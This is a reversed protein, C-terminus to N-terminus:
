RIDVLKVKYKSSQIKGEIDGISFLIGKNEQNAARDFTKNKFLLRNVMGATANFDWKHDDPWQMFDTILDRSKQEFYCNKQIETYIGEFIQRLVSKIIRHKDGM